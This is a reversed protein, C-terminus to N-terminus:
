LRKGGRGANPPLSNRQRWQCIVQRGSVGVRRAIEGDSLGQGYLRRALQQDWCVFRGPAPDRGADAKVEDKTRPRVSKTTCGQGPPCILSRPRGNRVLYDCLYGGVGMPSVVADVCGKCPHEMGFEREKM